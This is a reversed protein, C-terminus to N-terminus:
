IDGRLNVDGLDWAGRHIAFEVDESLHGIAKNFDGWMTTWKAKGM